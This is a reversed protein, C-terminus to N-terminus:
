FDHPSSQAFIREKQQSLCLHIKLVNFFSLLVLLQKVLETIMVSLLCSKTFAKMEMTGTVPNGLKILDIKGTVPNGLKIFDFFVGFFYHQCLLVSKKKKKFESLTIREREKPAGTISSPHGSCLLTQTAAARSDGVDKLRSGALDQLAKKSRSEARPAPKHWALGLWQSRAGQTPCLIKHPVYVLHTRWSLHRWRGPM